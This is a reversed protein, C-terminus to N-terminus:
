PCYSPHILAVKKICGSSFLKMNHLCFRTQFLLFFIWFTTFIREILKRMYQHLLMTFMKVVVKLIYKVM